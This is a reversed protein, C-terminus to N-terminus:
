WIRNCCYENILRERKFETYYSSKRHIFEDRSYIQFKALDSKLEIAKEVMKCAVSFKSNHNNGIEAIIKTKMKM